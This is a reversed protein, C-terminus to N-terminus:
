WKDSLPCTLILSTTIISSSSSGSSHRVTRCLGHSTCFSLNNQSLSQDSLLEEAQSKRQNKKGLGLWLLLSPLGLINLSSVSDMEQNARWAPLWCKIPSKLSFDNEISILQCLHNKFKYWNSQMHLSWSYTFILWFLRLELDYENCSVWAFSCTTHCLILHASRFSSSDWAFGGCLLHEHGCATKMSWLSMAWEHGTDEALRVAVAAPESSLPNVGVQALRIETRKKSSSFLPFWQCTCLFCICENRLLM